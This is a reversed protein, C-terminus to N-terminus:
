NHGTDGAYQMPLKENKNTPENRGPIWARDTSATEGATRKGYAIEGVPRGTTEPETCQSVENETAHIEETQEPQHTMKVYDHVSASVGLRITKGRIFLSSAGFDLGCKWSRLTEYAILLPTSGDIVEVPSFVDVQRNDGEICALDWRIAAAGKSKRASGDGFRFIRNSESGVKASNCSNRRRLRKQSCM